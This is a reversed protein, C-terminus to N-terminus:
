VYEEVIKNKDICYFSINNEKATDLAKCSPKDTIVWKVGIKEKLETTKNDDDMGFAVKMPGDFTHRYYKQSEDDYKVTYPMM